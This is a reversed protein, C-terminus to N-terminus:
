LFLIDELLDVFSCTSVVRAPPRHDCLDELSAVIPQGDLAIACVIYLFSSLALLKAGQGVELGLCEM